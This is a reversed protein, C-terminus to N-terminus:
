RQGGAHFADWVRQYVDVTQEICVPWRYQQSRQLGQKRLTQRLGDDELLEQLSKRIQEPDEASVLLGAEGVVEAMASNDSILVPVGSAMAELPPLGFGEYFSPFAFAAAGSYIVPLHETPVYGLHCGEGRRVLREIKQELEQCHWGRGGVLVLPFRRRLAAPLGEYAHLLGALNKRPELTAVALLYGPQLGYDALVKELQEGERPHFREDVGLPVATVNEAAVGLLEIVERRIFECDTVVHNARELTRPLEQELYRVREVPHFEPYHLHSLDHITTICCGKFPKLIYNPEHYLAQGDFRNLQNAFLANRMKTRLSYAGPIKRIFARLQGRSTGATAGAGEPQRFLSQAEVFRGECFCRVDDIRHDNPLGTALARTYHGIGTLPPRLADGGLIVQM